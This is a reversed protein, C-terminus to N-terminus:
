SSHYLLLVAAANAFSVASCDDNFEAAVYAFADASAAVIGLGANAAAASSSGLM